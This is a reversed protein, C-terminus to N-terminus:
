CCMFCPFQADAAIAAYFEGDGGPWERGYGGTSLSRTAGASADCQRRRRDQPEGNIFWWRRGEGGTTQLALMVRTTGPLRKIVAGERVGSLVLPAVDTAQPPPCDPSVAGSRAARREAPPLWPELPLPWVDVVKRVAGPCDAAVRRGQEDLWVPFRIGRGEEQGPLLLTPPQSDDLLWTALRRRCNSDGPALSQGGPWCITAASVTQPRPDTPLGGRGMAPRALLMNNVQNLLPVASAFGFQGVVPTGDPRGTWIGILYRANVGVAWADRYGYSTGTKWALPVVQVLSADPVPQAEGALIRRIIWAAGPSLLPREVLPDDPTMRLRAVKGHRAFASYGAVIDELKTGTGGLILSLNPEAGAPLTLPLGANRLTAAFRKPGYAELVQVAPLNLSRVLAESASVPGHFGSDFNGPRYDSFRRPVDQLLSAPHILGDDLAMGYVFPKLVSGPSRLASVM